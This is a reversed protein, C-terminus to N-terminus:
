NKIKITDQGLTKGTVGDIALEIVENPSAISVPYTVYYIPKGIDTRTVTVGTRNFTIDVGLDKMKDTLAQITFEYNKDEDWEDLTKGDKSYETWVGIPFGHFERGSLKLNGSGAFFEQYLM